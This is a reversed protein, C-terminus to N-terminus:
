SYLISYILAEIDTLPHFDFVEGKRLQEKFSSHLFVLGIYIYM